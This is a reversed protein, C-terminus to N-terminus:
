INKMNKKCFVYFIIYIKLNLRVYVGILFISNIYKFKYLYFFL